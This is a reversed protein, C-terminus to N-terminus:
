APVGMSAGIEFSTGPPLRVVRGAPLNTYEQATGTPRQPGALYVWVRGGGALDGVGEGLADVVGAGDQNPTVEPFPPAAGDGAGRRSKWDTPNVGSVVVRVRVEGPGPETVDRDVLRLVSPDGTHSYVVSKM